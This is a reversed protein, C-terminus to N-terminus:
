KRKFLKSIKDGVSKAASGIGSGVGSLVPIIFPLCIIIVFAVLCLSLIPLINNWIEKMRDLFEAWWNGDGIIGGLFSNEPPVEIGEAGGGGFTIPEMDVHYLISDLENSLTMTKIVFNEYVYNQYAATDSRLVALQNGTGVSDTYIFDDCIDYRLIVFSENTIYAEEMLKKIGPCDNLNIKYKDSLVSDELNFTEYLEAGSLTVISEINEISEPVTTEIGSVASALAAFFGIKEVTEAFTASRLEVLDIGAEADINFVTAKKSVYPNESTNIINEFEEDSISLNGDERYLIKLFKDYSQGDTNLANIDGITVVDNIMHGFYRTFTYTPIPTDYNTQHELELGIGVEYDELTKNDYVKLADYLDKDATLLIFYAKNKSYEGTINSVHRDNVKDTDNLDLYYNPLTFYFSQLRNTYYSGKESVGIDYYTTGSDAGKISITEGSVYTVKTSSSDDAFTSVYSTNFTFDAETDCWVYNAYSNPLYYTAKDIHYTREDNDEISSLLSEAGKVRFRMVAGSQGTCETWYVGKEGGDVSIWTRGDMYTNCGKGTSDYIYLYLSDNVVDEYLYVIDNVRDGSTIPYMQNIIDETLKNEKDDSFFEILNDSVSHRSPDYYDDIAYTYSLPITVKQKITQGESEPMRSCIARDDETIAPYNIEDIYVTFIEGPNKIFETVTFIQYDFTDTHCFCTYWDYVNSWKITDHLSTTEAAQDNIHYTLTTYWDYDITSCEFDPHHGDVMPINLPNYIYVGISWTLRIGVEDSDDDKYTYETVTPSSEVKAGVIRARDYGSTGKKDIYEQIDIWDGFGENEATKYEVSKTEEAFTFLAFLPLICCVCLILCLAKNLISKRKNKM